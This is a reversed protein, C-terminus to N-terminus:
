GSVEEAVRLQRKVEELQSLLLEHSHYLAPHCPCEFLHIM